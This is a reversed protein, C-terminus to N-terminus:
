EREKWIFGDLILAPIDDLEIGYDEQLSKLAESETDGLWESDNPDTYDPHKIFFSM